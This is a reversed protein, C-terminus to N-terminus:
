FGEMPCAQGNLIISGSSYGNPYCTKCPNKTISEWDYMPIIDDMKFDYDPCDFPIICRGNKFIYKNHEDIIISFIVLKDENDSLLSLAEKWGDKISIFEGYGPSKSNIGGITFSCVDLKTTNYSVYLRAKLDKSLKDYGDGTFGFKGKLKTGDYGIDFYINNLLYSNSIITDDSKINTNENPTSQSAGSQSAGSQSAGIDISSQTVGTNSNTLGVPEPNTNIQNNGENTKNIKDSKEDNSSDSKIEDDSMSLERKIGSLVQKLVGNSYIYSIDTIIWHGTLRKLQIERSSATVTSNIFSIFVKQFKYFNFNPNGLTLECSIKVLDDLNRRNQVIAYNYNTHVNDVDIKGTWMSNYNEKFFKEDAPAGKLIISKDGESTISDVDFILLDKKNYDYFKVKTSYGKDLSIFTSDNTIKYSKIFANTNKLSSDTTLQLPIIRDEEKSTPDSITYQEIGSTDVMNDNSIDRRLESEIDIYNINYFYDIYGILFSDDSLYSNLIVDDIFKYYNVGPSIWTMKDNTSSINSNFGLGLDKAVEQLCDFSNKDQFAKYKKVYLSSVDVTGSLSYINNGNDSFSTIKFQMYISKLSKSRSNLFILIKTDDLPYGDSKIINLTDRFTMKINPLIGDHFLTFYTIDQYSIQYSNYWVFPLLGLGKVFYGKEDESFGSMNMNIPNLKITPGFFNTLAIPNGKSGRDNYNYNDTSIYDGKSKPSDSNNSNLNNNKPPIYDKDYKSLVQRARQLFNSRDNIGNTGGNIKKTIKVFDEKDALKNLNRQDWFWGAVDVSYKSAVTTPYDIINDSVEDKYKKYNARGTLQILGRGKYKRGDGPYVNGLDKRNEYADGSAIEEKFNLSGSEHLVQALFHCVRPVSDIQCKQLIGNILPTYYEVNKKSASPAIQSLDSTTLVISM